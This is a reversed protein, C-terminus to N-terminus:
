RFTLKELETRIMTWMEIKKEIVTTRLTINEYDRLIEAVAILACEQAAEYNDVPKGKAEDYSRTPPTFKLFLDNAKERATRKSSIM